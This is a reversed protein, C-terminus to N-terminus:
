ILLQHNTEPPGLQQTRRSGACCREARFSPPLVGTFSLYLCRHATDGCVLQASLVSTQMPGPLPCLVWTSVEFGM